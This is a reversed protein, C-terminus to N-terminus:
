DQGLFKSFFGISISVILINISWDIVQKKSQIGDMSGYILANLFTAIIIVGLLIIALRKIIINQDTQLLEAGAEALIACSLLILDGQGFLLLNPDECFNSAFKCKLLYKGFLPAGAILLNFFLWKLIKEWKFDILYDFIQKINAQVNQIGTKM